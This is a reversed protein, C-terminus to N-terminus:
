QLLKLAEELIRDKGAIEDEPSIWVPIDPYIGSGQYDDGNITKKQTNSLRFSCGNPLDRQLPNSSGGGTTDGVQTVNSLQKMCTIFRETTSYCSRNTLIIIPKSFTQNGAPSLYVDVWETFDNHEPGSRYRVSFVQQKNTFFQTSITDANQAAGGSNSRVDIILADKSQIESIISSITQFDNNPGAFSYIKMYAINENKISATSINANYDFDNELYAYPYGLNNAPYEMYWDTYGWEAFPAYLNCHGDKLVAIMEAMVTFLEENSTSNSINSSYAKGISDWNVGSLEFYSYHRDFDTWLANFNYSPTSLDNTSFINRECSLTCVIILILPLTKIPLISKSYKIDLKKM